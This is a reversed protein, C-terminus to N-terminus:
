SWDISSVWEIFTQGQGPDEGIVNYITFCDLLNVTGDNNVDYKANSSGVHGYTEIVDQMNISGDGNVDFVAYPSASVAPVSLLLITATIMMVKKM